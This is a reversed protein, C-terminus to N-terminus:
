KDALTLMTSVMFGMMYFSCYVGIILVTTKLLSRKPATVIVALYSIPYVLVLPLLPLNAFVLALKQVANPENSTFKMPEFSDPLFGIFAHNVKIALATSFLPTLLTWMIMLFVVVLVAGMVAQQPYGLSPPKSDM